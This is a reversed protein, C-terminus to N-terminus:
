NIYKNVCFACFFQEHARTLACVCVCVCVCVSEREREREREREIETDIVSYQHCFAASSFLRELPYNQISFLRQQKM